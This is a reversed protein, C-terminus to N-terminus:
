VWTSSFAIMGICRFGHQPVGIAVVIYYGLARLRCRPAEVQVKVDCRVLVKKWSKTSLRAGVELLAGGDIGMHVINVGHDSGNVAFDVVIM